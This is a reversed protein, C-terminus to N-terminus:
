SATIQVDDLAYFGDDLPEDTGSGVGFELTTGPDSVTITYTARSDSGHTGSGMPNNEYLQTREVTIGPSQINAGAREVARNIPSEQFRTLFGSVIVRWVKIARLLLAHARVM